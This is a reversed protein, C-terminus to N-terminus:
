NRNKRKTQAKFSRVLEQRRRWLKSVSHTYLVCQSSMIDITKKKKTEVFIENEFSLISLQLNIHVPFLACMLTMLLNKMDNKMAFVVVVLFWIAHLLLFQTTGHHPM